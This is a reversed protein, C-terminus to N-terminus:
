SLRIQSVQTTRAYQDYIARQDRKLGEADIRKTEFHSLTAVAEGNVLAQISWRDSVGAPRQALLFHRVIDKAKIERAEAEAKDAAASRWAALAETAYGDLEVADM